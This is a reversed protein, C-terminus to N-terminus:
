ICGVPGVREPGVLRGNVGGGENWYQPDRGGRSSWRVFRWRWPVQCAGCVGGCQRLGGGVSRERKSLYMVKEVVETQGSRSM